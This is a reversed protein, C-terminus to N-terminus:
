VCVWVCALECGRFGSGDDTGSLGLEEDFELLLDACLPFPSLFVGLHKPHPAVSVGSHLLPGIPGLVNHLAQTLRCDVLIM